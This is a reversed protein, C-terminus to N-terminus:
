VGTKKDWITIHLRDSFRVGNHCAIQAAFARSENLASQSQGEPMVIIKTRSIYPLFDAVIEEWDDVSTVVFKFWSNNLGNMYTLVEPKIRVRHKMESNALKPSNNWCDVIKVMDEDPMLVAENECEIFPKFGFRTVFAEVFKVIQKQQMLPSGGTFILHQGNYFKPIMNHELFMEFISDFSYDDGYPWVQLTDCWVCKLTCGQLRIFTSPIGVTTGEGQITDIFMESISLKDGTLKRRDKRFSSAILTTPM